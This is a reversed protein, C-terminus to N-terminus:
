RDIEPTFESISILNIELSCSSPCSGEGWESFRPRRLPAGGARACLIQLGACRASCRRGFSGTRQAAPQAAAYNGCHWM